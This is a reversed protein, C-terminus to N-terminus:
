SATHCFCLSTVWERNIMPHSSVVRYFPCHYYLLTVWLSNTMPHWAILAYYFFPYYWECATPWSVLYLWVAELCVPFHWERGIPWQIPHLSIASPSYHTIDSVFQLWLILHQCLFSLLTVWMRNTMSHSTILNLQIASFPCKWECGVWPWLILHSSIANCFFTNSVAQENHSVTMTWYLFLAADGVKQQDHCSIYHSQMTCHVTHSVRQNHSSNYHSQLFLYHSESVRQQDHYSFHYFQWTFSLTVWLRNIM